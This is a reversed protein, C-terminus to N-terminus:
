ASAPMQRQRITNIIDMHERKNEKRYEAWEEILRELTKALHDIDRGSAQHNGKLESMDDELVRLRANQREQEDKTHRYVLSGIATLLAGILTAMSAMLTAVLASHEAFFSEEM